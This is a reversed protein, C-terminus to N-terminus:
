AIELLASRQTRLRALSEAARGASRPDSTMINSQLFAEGTAGLMALALCALRSTEGDAHQTVLVLRGLAQNLRLRGALGIATKQVNLDPDDLARLILREGAQSLGSFASLKLANARVKADPHRMLPAVATLALPCRWAAAMELAGAIQRPTGDKLVAPLATATLQPAYDRLEGALMARLLLPADAANRFLLTLDDKSACRVLARYIIPEAATKPNKLLPRLASCALSPTLQGLYEVAQKCERRGRKSRRRWRDVFGLEVALESLKRQAQGDIATLAEVLCVEVDRLSRRRLARLEALVNKSDQSVLFAAIQARIAPRLRSSRAARLSEIKKVFSSALLQISISAIQIGIFAIALSLPIQPVRSSVVNRHLWWVPYLFVVMVLMAKLLIVARELGTQRFASWKITAISRGNKAVSLARSVHVTWLKKL